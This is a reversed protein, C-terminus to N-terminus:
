NLRRALVVTEKFTRSDGEASNFAEFIVIYIGIRNRTGDDKLGDWILSGQFGASEADALKRVM